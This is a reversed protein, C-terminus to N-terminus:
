KVVVVKESTKGKDSSIYVRYLDSKISIIDLSQEWAFSNFDKELVIIGSLLDYFAVSTRQLFHNSAIKIENEAPNPYISIQLSKDATEINVYRIQSYEKKGDLDFQVLRYYNKGLFPKADTFSYSQVEKTTGNGEM